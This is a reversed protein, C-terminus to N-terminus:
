TLSTTAPWPSALNVGCMATVNVWTRHNAKTELKRKKVKEPDKKILQSNRRNAYFGKLRKLVESDSPVEQHCAILGNKLSKLMRMKLDESVESWVRETYICGLEEECDNDFVDQV